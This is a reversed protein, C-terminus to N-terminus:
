QRKGKWIGYGLYEWDKYYNFCWGEFKHFLEELEHALSSILMVVILLIATIPLTAYFLIKKM